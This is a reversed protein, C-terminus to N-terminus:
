PAADDSKAPPEGALTYAEDFGRRPLDDTALVLEFRLQKRVEAMADIVGELAAALSGTPTSVECAPCCIHQSKLLTEPTVGFACGCAKCEFELEM